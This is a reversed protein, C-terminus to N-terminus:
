PPRISDPKGATLRRSQQEPLEVRAHGRLQKNLGAWGGDAAQVGSRPTM